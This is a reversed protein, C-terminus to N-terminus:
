VMWKLSNWWSFSRSIKQQLEFVKYITSLNLSLIVEICRFWVYLISPPNWRGKSYVRPFKTQISLFGIECMHLCNSSSWFLEVNEWRISFPMLIATNVSTPSLRIYVFDAMWWLPRFTFSDCTIVLWRFSSKLVCTSYYMYM